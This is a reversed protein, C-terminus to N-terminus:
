KEKTWVPGFDVVVGRTADEDGVYVPHQTAGSWVSLWVRRTRVVERLEDESLEWCSVCVNGNTFVAMSSVREDEGTPPGLVKNAGAFAVPRGM